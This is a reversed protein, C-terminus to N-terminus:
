PMSTELTFPPYIGGSNVAPIVGVYVVLEGAGIPVDATLQGSVGSFLQGNAWLSLLVRADTWTLRLRLTGTRPSVMRILTCPWCEDGGVDYSMDLPSSTFSEGAALRVIRQFAVASERNPVLDLERIEYGDKDFVLRANKLGGLVFRGSQGSVPSTITSNGSQPDSVRVGDLGV